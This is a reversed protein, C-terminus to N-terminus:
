SQDTSHNSTTRLISRDYWSHAHWRVWKHKMWRHKGILSCATLDDRPTGRAQQRSHRPCCAPLIHCVSCMQMNALKTKATDALKWTSIPPTLTLLWCPAGPVAYFALNFAEPCSQRSVSMIPESKCITCGNFALPLYFVPSAPNRAKRSLASRGAGRTDTPSQQAPLSAHVASVGYTKCLISIASAFKPSAFYPAARTHTNQSPHNCGDFGSVVARYHYLICRSKV